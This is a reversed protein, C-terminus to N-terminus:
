GFAFSVMKKEDQKKIFLCKDHFSNVFSLTILFAKSTLFGNRGSQKLGYFSEKLKCVFPKRNEDLLEFGEPQKIVVDEEIPANFFATKTDMQKLQYDNSIVLCMLIRNASLRNTTSYTKYFDKGFVQSFGKAVFRTKYRCIDGDLGFKLAFHWRSGVPKEDSKM